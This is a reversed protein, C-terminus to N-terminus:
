RPPWTVRGVTKGEAVTEESPRCAFGGALIVACLCRALVHLLLCGDDIASGSTLHTDFSLSTPATRAMFGQKAARNWDAHISHRHTDM